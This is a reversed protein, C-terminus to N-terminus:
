DFLCDAGGRHSGLSLGAPARNGCITDPMKGMSTSTRAMLSTILFTDRPMILPVRPEEALSETVPLSLCIPALGLRWFDPMGTAQLAVCCGRPM